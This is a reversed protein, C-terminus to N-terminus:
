YNQEKSRKLTHNWFRRALHRFLSRKWCCLVDETSPVESEVEPGWFSASDLESVWPSKSSSVLVSMTSSSQSSVSGSTTVGPPPTFMSSAAPLSLSPPPTISFKSGPSTLFSSTATLSSASPVLPFLWFSSLVSWDAAVDSGEM